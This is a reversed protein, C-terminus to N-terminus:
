WRGAQDYLIFDASRETPDPANNIPANDFIYVFDAGDSGPQTSVVKM